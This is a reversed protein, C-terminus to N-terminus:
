RTNSLVLEAYLQRLRDTLSEWTYHALVKQRGVVGMHQRLESDQLLTLIKDALDNSDEYTFLLGDKGDDILSPISNTRAGIVAKGAAWAEIFTIGFSENGGPHVFLDSAALLKPKDAEAFNHIVIVRAQAEVPFAAIMRDIQPSYSTRAGALILRADPRQAWVLPMAEMLLDIRKLISQRAIFILVPDHGLQYQARISKGEAALYPPIFVGGGMITIKDARVGQEVLHDREYETLAIYADAQSIAKYMMQRDYGWEDAVHIAGLMVIPIGARKAGALAAYMHLFPFSTALVVDAKSVAVAQPLDFLIPGTQITRAWDNYPLRLRRFGHALLMRLTQLGNFVKFRRVPVGDISVTGPELLPGKIRWFTEANPAAATFVTVDDQYRTILQESFNKVLGEVGGIAPHYCQVVHLIKM